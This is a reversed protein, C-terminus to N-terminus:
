GRLPYFRGFFRNNKKQLDDQLLSAVSPDRGNAGGSSLRSGAWFNELVEEIRKEIIEILRENADIIEQEKEAEAVLQKQIEFIDKFNRLFVM